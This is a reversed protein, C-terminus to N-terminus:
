HVTQLSELQVTFCFFRIYRMTVPALEVAAPCDSDRSACFFFVPRSLLPIFQLDTLCSRAAVRQMEANTM